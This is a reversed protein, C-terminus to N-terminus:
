GKPKLPIDYVDLATLTLLPTVAVENLSAIERWDREVKKADLWDTTFGKTLIAGTTEDRFGKVDILQLQGFYLRSRVIIRAGIDAEIFKGVTHVKEHNQTLKFWESEGPQSPLRGANWQRHLLEVPNGIQHENIDYLMMTYPDKNHLYDPITFQFKDMSRFDCLIPISVYTQWDHADADILRYLDIAYHKAANVAGETFGNSAVMAGKNARIDKVKSSFAEVEQIDVPTRYDKCDIVILLNYQGIQKRIAIDIQRSTKSDQGWIHDNHKVSADPALEQQVKAVLKEFTLWKPDSNLTM